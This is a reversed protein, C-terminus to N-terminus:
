IPCQQLKEALMTGPSGWIAAPDRLLNPDRPLGFPYKGLQGKHVFWIPFFGSQSPVSNNVSIWQNNQYWGLRKAFKTYTDMNSQKLSMTRHTELYVGRQVGFGYKENSYKRWLDDINILTQCNLSEVEHSELYGSNNTDGEQILKEWTKDNAESWRKDALLQPLSLNAPRPKPKPKPLIPLTEIIIAETKSEPKPKTQSREIPRNLNNPPLPPFSIITPNSGRFVIDGQDLDPNRITGFQPTQTKTYESLNQRLFLGLENGTVYGDKTYDAEGELGRIFLPTFVSKAPVKEDADGATLFQRVPKNMVDRIYANTFNAQSRQKFITGSFCSDFVFLAHKAEMLEAWTMIQQMPLAAKLFGREDLNADPADIPVLYGKTKQRTHGHGAFFIVLRNNRIYGYDDIFKKISNRLQNGNPNDIVTVKFGQKELAQKVNLSTGM